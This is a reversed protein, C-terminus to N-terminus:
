EHLGVFKIGYEIVEEKGGSHIIRLVTKIPLGVKLEHQTTIQGYVKEGSELQVLAVAYPTQESFEPAAVYITTWSVIKGRQGLLKKNKKQNRWVRIPNTM